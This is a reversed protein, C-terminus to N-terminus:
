VGILPRIRAMVCAFNIVAVNPPEQKMILLKKKVILLEQKM